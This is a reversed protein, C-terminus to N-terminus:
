RMIRGTVLLTQHSLESGVTYRALPDDGLRWGAPMRRGLKAKRLRADEERLLVAVRGAHTLAWSITAEARDSVILAKRITSAPVAHEYIYPSSKGYLKRRAHVVSLDVGDGRLRDLARASVLYASAALTYKAIMNGLLYAADGHLAAVEPIQLGATIWLRLARQDENEEAPPGDM